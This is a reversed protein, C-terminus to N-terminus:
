AALVGTPPGRRVVVHLLATRSCREASRRRDHLLVSSCRRMVLWAVLAVVRSAALLFWVPWVVARRAAVAWLRVAQWLAAEGRRLLWGAILAAAAHAALMSPTFMSAPSMAGMAHTGTGLGNGMGPIGSMVPMGGPVAAPGINTMRIIQMARQM